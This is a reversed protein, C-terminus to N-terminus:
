HRVRAPDAAPEDRPTPLKGSVDPRDTPQEPQADKRRRNTLAGGGILLLGLAGLVYPARDLMQVKSKDSKAAAVRDAITEKTPVLNDIDLATEVTGNAFKIKTLPATESSVISGTVPEVYVTRAKNSYLTQTGTLVGYQGLNVEPVTGKFVYVELGDVKTTGSYSVPWGKGSTQDLYSYTTKKTGFPFKVTQAGTVDYAKPYGSVGKGTNRNFAINREGAKLAAFRGRADTFTAEGDPGVRGLTLVEHYVGNTRDGLYGGKGNVAPTIERQLDVTVPEMQGTASNLIQGNSRSHTTLTEKAPAKKLAPTLATPVLAAMAITFAGVGILAKATKTPM